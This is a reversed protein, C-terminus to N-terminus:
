FVCLEGWLALLWVSLVRILRHRTPSWFLEKLRKREFDVKHIFFFFAEFSCYAMLTGRDARERIFVCSEALASPCPFPLVDGDEGELCPDRGQRAAGAM